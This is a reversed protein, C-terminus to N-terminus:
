NAETRPPPPDISLYSASPPGFKVSFSATSRTRRIDSVDLAAISLSSSCPTVGHHCTPLEEPQEQGSPPVLVGSTVQVAPGTTSNRTGHAHANSTALALFITVATVSIVTLIVRAFIRDILVRRPTMRAAGKATTGVM